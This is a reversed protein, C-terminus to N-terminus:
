AYIGRAVAMGAVLAALSLVVSGGVYLTAAMPTGRQWLSVSDLSFASFTTFGGLIGTMILPAHRTLGRQAFLVVVFGMLFSGLVNVFLTAWPFGGGLLRMAAVNTLYRVSAGLAGGFAVTFLTQFM